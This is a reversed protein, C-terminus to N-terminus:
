KAEVWFRPAPPQYNPERETPSPALARGATAYGPAQRPHLVIAGAAVKFPYKRIVKKGMSVEVVWDGASALHELKLPVEVGEVDAVLKTTLVEGSKDRFSTRVKGTGVIKKGRKVALQLTFDVPKLAKELKDADAQSTAAVILEFQLGAPTVIFAGLNDWDSRSVYTTKDWQVIQFPLDVILASDAGSTVKLRFKGPKKFEVEIGGGAGFQCVPTGAAAVCSGPASGLVVGKETELTTTLKCTDKLDNWSKSPKNTSLGHVGRFEGYRAVMNRLAAPFGEAYAVTCTASPAAPGDDAIASTGILALVGVAVAVM